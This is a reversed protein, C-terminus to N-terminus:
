TTIANQKALNPSRTVTFKLGWETESAMVIEAGKEYLWNTGNIADSAYCGFPMSPANAITVFSLSEPVQAALLANAKNSGAPIAVIDLTLIEDTSYVAVRNGKQDKLVRTDAEHKLSGETLIAFASANITTGGTNVWTCTIEAISALDQNTLGQLVRKGIFRSM